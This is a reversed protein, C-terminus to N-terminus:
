LISKEVPAQAKRTVVTKDQNVPIREAERDRDSVYKSESSTNPRQKASSQASSEDSADEASAPVYDDESTMISSVLSDSNYGLM